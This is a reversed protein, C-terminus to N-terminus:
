LFVVNMCFMGFGNCYCQMCDCFDEFLECVVILQNFLLSLNFNFVVYRVIFVQGDVICVGVVFGNCVLVEEVKVGILINVGCEECCCVMVQIIVGM